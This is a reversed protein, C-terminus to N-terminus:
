GEGGVWWQELQGEFGLEHGGDKIFGEVAGRCGM